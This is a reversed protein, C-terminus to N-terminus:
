TATHMTKELMQRMTKKIKVWHLLPLGVLKNCTAGIIIKGRGSYNFTIFRISDIM